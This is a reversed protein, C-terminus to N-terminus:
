AVGASPDDVISRQHIHVKKSPSLGAIYRHYTDSTCQWDCSGITVGVSYACCWTLEVCPGHKCWGGWSICDFQYHMSWSVTKSVELACSLECRCHLTSTWHLLPCTVPVHFACLFRAPYMVQYLYNTVDFHSMLGAFVFVTIVKSLTSHM